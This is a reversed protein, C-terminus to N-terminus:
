LRSIRTILSGMWIGLGGDIWAADYALKTHTVAEDWITSSEQDHPIQELQSLIARHALETEHRLSREDVGAASWLVLAIAAGAAAILAITAPVFYGISFGARQRSPVHRSAM